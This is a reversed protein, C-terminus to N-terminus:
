TNVVSGQGCASLTGDLKGTKTQLLVPCQTVKSNAAHQSAARSSGGLVLLMLMLLRAHHAHVM